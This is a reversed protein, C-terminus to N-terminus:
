RKLSVSFSIILPWIQKVLFRATASSFFSLDDKREVFNRGAKVGLDEVWGEVWALWGFSHAKFGRQHTSLRFSGTDCACDCSWSGLWRASTPWGMMGMGGQQIRPGSTLARPEGVWLNWPFIVSPGPKCRSRNRFPTTTISVQIIKNQISLAVM